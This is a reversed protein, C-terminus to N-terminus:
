ARCAAAFNVSEVRDWTVPMAITPLAALIVISLVCGSFCVFCWDATRRCHAPYIIFPKRFSLFPFLFHFRCYQGPNRSCSQESHQYHWRLNNRLFFVFVFSLVKGV